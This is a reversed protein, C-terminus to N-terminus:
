AKIGLPDISARSSMDLSKRLASSSIPREPVSRMPAEVFRTDHESLKEKKKDDDREKELLKMTDHAEALRPALLAMKEALRRADQSNHPTRAAVKCAAWERRLSWVRERAVEARRATANDIDVATGQTELIDRTEMLEQHLRNNQQRLTRIQREAAEDRRVREDLAVQKRAMCPLPHKDLRLFRIIRQGLPAVTLTRNQVKRAM